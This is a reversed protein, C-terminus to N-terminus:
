PADGQALAAEAELLWFSMEMTRYLKIVTDLKTHAQLPRMGLAEALVQQYHAEAREHEPPELHAAIEGRLCLVYAQDREQHVRAHALSQEALAQAEELRGTLPTHHISLSVSGM